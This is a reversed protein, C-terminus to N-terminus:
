RSALTSTAVLAGVIVQGPGKVTGEVTRKSLSNMIRITDGQAGSDLARGQASLSMGPATVMMAVIDGKTIVLPQAVDGLRVAQGARLMRKPTTGVLDNPNTLVNQGLRDAPVDTWEFDGQSIVDGPRMDRVLVPLAIVEYVRGIMNVGPASMDDAPARLRARFQGTRPDIDLGDVAVSAQAGLPIHMVPMAGSFNLALHGQLGQAAAAELLQAKVVDAPIVDGIRTVSIADLKQTNPWDIGHQTSFKSLRYADLSTREGPMPAAAVVVRAAEPNDSFSESTFLDGLTITRGEVAVNAKLIAQPAALATAGTTLSFLAATVFTALKM